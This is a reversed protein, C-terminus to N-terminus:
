AEDGRADRSRRVRQWLLDSARKDGSREKLLALCTLAEEHDPRLYLAKGLMEEARDVDDRALEVVGRLAFVEASPGQADLVRECEAAAAPLDCDATCAGTGTM